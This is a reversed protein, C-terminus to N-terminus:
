KEGDFCGWDWVQMFLDSLESIVMRDINKLKEAYENVMYAYTMGGRKGMIHQAYDETTYFNSSSKLANTNKNINKNDTIDASSLYRDSKIGDLGGQPTNSHRNIDQGEYENKSNGSSNASNDGSNEKNHTIIVDTDSLIDYDKDFAKYLKNYYPMIVSLKADLRLQFLGFTESGIERTYYHKLIKKALIPRYEPKFTVFSPPFIKDWSKDIVDDISMYGKGHEYGALSECIYRIQTTYSSM